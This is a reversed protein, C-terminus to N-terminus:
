TRIWVVTKPAFVGVIPVFLRRVLLGLLRCVTTPAVLFRSGFHLAFNQSVHALFQLRIAEVHALLFNRLSTTEGLSTGRSEKVRKTIHFTVLHPNFTRSLTDKTQRVKALSLNGLTDNEDWLALVISSLLFEKQLTEQLLALLGLSVLRLDRKLNQTVALGMVQLLKKNGSSVGVELGRAEPVREGVHDFLHLNELPHAIPM